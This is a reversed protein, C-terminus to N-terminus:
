VTMKASINSFEQRDQNKFTVQLQKNLGIFGTSNMYIVTFNNNSILSHFNVAKSQKM